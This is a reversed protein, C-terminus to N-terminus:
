EADFTGNPYVKTVKKMQGNVLAIDGPQFRDRGYVSSPKISAPYKGSGAANYADVAEQEVRARVDVLKTDRVFLNLPNKAM